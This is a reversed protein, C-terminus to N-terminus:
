LGKWKKGPSPDSEHDRQGEPKERENQVLHFLDAPGMLGAQSFFDKIRNSFGFKQGKRDKTSGDEPRLVHGQRECGPAVPLIERKVKRFDGETSPDWQEEQKSEDQSERGKLTLTKGM